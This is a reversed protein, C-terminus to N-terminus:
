LGGPHSDHSHLEPSHLRLSHLFHGSQPGHRRLLNPSRTARDPLRTKTQRRRHHLRARHHVALRRDLHLGPSPRHVLPSQSRPKQDRRSHASHRRLRDLPLHTSINTTPNPLPSPLTFDPLPLCFLPFCVMTWSASLFGFLFSWGNPTWGSNNQVETWVFESTHLGQGKKNNCCALLTICAAVLVCIHFMVYTKTIKELMSTNLSNLVSHFLTSAAMVGVTQRDTPLYGKFDSSMAVAALLLQACGYETSAAGAIQGLLNLWGVLWSIEPM